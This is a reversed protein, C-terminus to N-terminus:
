VRILPVETPLCLASNVYTVPKVRSSFLPRASGLYNITPLELLENAARASPPVMTGSLYNGKGRREVVVTETQQLENWHSVSYPQIDIPLIPTPFPLPLLDIKRNCPRFPADLANVQHISCSM